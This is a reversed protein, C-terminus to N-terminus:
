LSLAFDLYLSFFPIFHVVNDPFNLNISYILSLTPGNGVIADARIDDRRLLSQRGSHSCTDGDVTHLTVVRQRISLLRNM